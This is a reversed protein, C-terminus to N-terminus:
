KCPQAIKSYFVKGADDKQMEWGDVPTTTRYISYYENYTLTQRQPARTNEIIAHVPDFHVFRNQRLKDAITNYLQHQEDPTLREWLQSAEARRRSSSGHDALLQWLTDFTIM